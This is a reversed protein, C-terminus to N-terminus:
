HPVRTSSSEPSRVHAATTSTGVTATDICSPCFLLDGDPQKKEQTKLESCAGDVIRAIEKTLASPAVQYMGGRAGEYRCNWAALAQGYRMADRLTTASVRKLGSAGRYALKCLLGTTCWDGAGATDMLKDVEFAGLTVWGDTKARSLCSRYRLGESGLTEVELLVSAHERRSLGVDAIDRLREHSYKVIHALSWAERFLNTDGVGSPEFMIAAGIKRCHEAVILVGRSVRDFFFVMPNGVRRVVERATAELVPRYGPLHNGCAPCRWSFSHIPRGDGSRGIREVIIPTSGNMLQTIFQTTVTWTKLDQILRDAAPGPSIRSIPVSAWGLYSLATLVNGCTGGAFYRPTTSKDARLVVDLALLGMGVVLPKEPRSADTRTNRM